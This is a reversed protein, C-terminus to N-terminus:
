AEDETVRPRHAPLKHAAYHELSAVSYLWRRRGDRKRDILKRGALRTLWSHSCKLLLRADKNDIWKSM